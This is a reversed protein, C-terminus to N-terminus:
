KSELKSLKEKIEEIATKLETVDKQLQIVDVAKEAIEKPVESAISRQKTSKSKITALIGPFRKKAKGTLKVKSFAKLNHTNGVVVAGVMGMVQHPKCKIGHIGEIDFKYLYDKSIKSKWKSAGEPASGKKNMSAVNHGKNVSIFNVSDGKNIFVVAPEFVMKQGDSGKNLMKIDITKSFGFPMIFFFLSTFMILKKIKM